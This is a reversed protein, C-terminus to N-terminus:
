QKRRHNYRPSDCDSPAIQLVGQSFGTLLAHLTQKEANPSKDSPAALPHIKKKILKFM